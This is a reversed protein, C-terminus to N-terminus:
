ILTSWLRCFSELLRTSKSRNQHTTYDMERCHKLDTLFDSKFHAAKDPNYVMVNIEFNINFSRYDMNTTGTSAFTDDVVITKAHLFGKEYKYVKVGARLLTELYSDSAKMVVWSDSKLPVMLRVDIGSKAAIEMATMIQENPVFYPTAIYVYKKSTVIATFIAEMINPRDSDPGSAAIQLAVLPEKVMNEPFFDQYVKMDEDSVFDWTTLFHIQLSNVAEGEMRLHTDRLFVESNESNRYNDSINIGGVYGIKGDIIAIKRHNRYNMKGTFRPFFVPMFPHHLVGSQSLRNKMKKSISSGVDDYILRVEIGNEAKLCLINLIEEGIVDDKIIYYELHIHNEANKLDAILADFKAKGNKLIELNNNLTLPFVPNSNLFKAVAKQEGLVDCFDEIDKSNVKLEKQISKVVSKNLIHKKNFIKNKRYDQGFLYYVVIGLFPFFVLVIVYTLTRNPNSNKLLISIVASVVIIYNVLLLVYWYNEIFLAVM